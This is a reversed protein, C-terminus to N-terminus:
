TAASPCQTSSRQTNREEIGALKDTNLEVLCVETTLNHTFHFQFLYLCQKLHSSSGLSPKLAETLSKFKIEADKVALRFLIRGRSGRLKM